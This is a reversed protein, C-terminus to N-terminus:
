FWADQTWAAGSTADQGGSGGSRLRLEVEALLSRFGHFRYFSVLAEDDPKGPLLRELGPGNPLDMRLRVLERNARVRDEAAVLAQRLRESKLGHVNRYVADLTGHTRLLDAATKPGVGQVGPINDVADGVLALWDVIQEPLVGTKARVDDASWVREFKDKPHLLGVGEGVLQLFDKDPSAVLVAWGTERARRTYTGIWDDAETGEQLVQAYGAQTLWEQMWPFQQDLAPPTEPRQAKYGPLVGTRSPDLGGDWAVLLHTAAHLSTLRDLAKIFGFLANTPHGDPANLSRIAHFSRYAFAHGDVLLLVPNDPQSSM